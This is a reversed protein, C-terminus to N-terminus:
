SIPLRQRVAGDIADRFAPESSMLRRFTEYPLQWLVVATHATVSALRPYSYGSGWDRAALEGFFHGAV